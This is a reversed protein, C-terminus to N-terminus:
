KDNKEIKINDLGDEELIQNYKEELGWLERMFDMEAMKEREKISYKEHMEKVALKKALNDWFAYEEFESVDELIENSYEDSLINKGDYKEVFETQGFKDAYQLLHDILGDIENSQKKYKEDVADGMVGYIFGAVDTARLLSKYQEKSLEIQM